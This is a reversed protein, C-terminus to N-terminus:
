TQNIQLVEEVIIQGKRDQTLKRGRIGKLMDNDRLVFSKLNTLHLPYVSSFVIMVESSHALEVRHADVVLSGILMDTQGSYRYLLARFATLLTMYVTAETPQSMAKLQTVLSASLTASHKDRQYSQVAPRPYDTPLELLPPAGNLQKRWYALSKELTPNNITM